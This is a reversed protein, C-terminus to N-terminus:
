ACDEFNEADNICTMTHVREERQNKDNKNFNSPICKYFFCTNKFQDQRHGSNRFGAVIAGDVGKGIEVCEELSSAKTWDIGPNSEREITYCDHPPRFWGNVVENTTVTDPTDPPEPIVPDFEDAGGAAAPFISEKPIVGAVVLIGLVVIATILLALIKKATSMEKFKAVVGLFKDNISM